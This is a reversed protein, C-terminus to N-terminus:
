QLMANINAIRADSIRIIDVVTHRQVNEAYVSDTAINASDAAVGIQMQAPDWYEYHTEDPTLAVGLFAHGPIIVIEAHLGIREVASALLLTLEICMGSNQRLVETPLKIIETAMNDSGQGSYPVSAQV